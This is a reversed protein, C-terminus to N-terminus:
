LQDPAAMKYWAYPCENWDFTEVYRLGVSELVKRSVINNEEAM